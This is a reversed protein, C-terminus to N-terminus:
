TQGLDRTNVIIAMKEDRVSIRTSHWKCASAVRDDETTIKVFIIWASCESLAEDMEERISCRIVAGSCFLAGIARACIRDM